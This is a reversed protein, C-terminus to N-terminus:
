IYYAGSGLNFFLVFYKINSQPAGFVLRQSFPKFCRTAKTKEIKKLGLGFIFIIYVFFILVSSSKYIYIYCRVKRFHREITM